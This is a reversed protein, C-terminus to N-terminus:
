KSGSALWRKVTEADTGVEKVIAKLPRGEAHLEVAKARRKRYGSVRCSDSCFVRDARNVGPALEFPDGCHECNRYKKSGAVASVFQLWLADMLRWVELQIRVAKGIRIPKISPAIPPPVRMLFDLFGTAPGILDGVKYPHEAAQFGRCRDSIDTIRAWRALPSIFEVRRGKWRVHERLRGQDEDLIATWLSIIDVMDTIAGQWDLLTPSSEDTRYGESWLCGYQNAFTQISSEDPTLRAFKYFLSPEDRFPDYYRWRTDAAVRWEEISSKWDERGEGDAYLGIRAARKEDDTEPMNERFLLRSRGFWQPTGCWIFGKKWVAITATFQEM